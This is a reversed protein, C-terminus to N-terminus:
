VIITPTTQIKLTQRHTIKPYFSIAEDESCVAVPKTTCDILNLSKDLCIRVESLLFKGESDDGYTQENQVCEIAPKKSLASTLHGIIERGTYGKGPVVNCKSLINTIDYKM